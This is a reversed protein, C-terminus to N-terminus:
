VSVLPDIYLISDQLMVLAVHLLVEHLRGLSWDLTSGVDYGSRPM